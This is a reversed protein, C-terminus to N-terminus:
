NRDPNLPASPEIHAQRPVVPPLQVARVTVEDLLVQGLGSLTFIVQVSTDDAIGRYLSFKQWGRTVSFREALDQGGYTDHIMFGNLNGQIPETVNIWGHIRILQGAKVQVPASKIWLPDADITSKSGQASMVLGSAGRVAATESLEVRTNITSDNGRFNEWGNGTLQSLDEFEGGILGNPQWAAGELRQALEWYGPLTTISAFLPCANTNAFAQRGRMITAQRALALRQDARNLYAVTSTSSGTSVLRIVQQMLNNAENTAGNVEGIGNGSRQLQELVIQTLVLWRRTLEIHLQLTTEGGDERNAESLARIIGPEQTLVIATNAPCDDIRIQATNLQRARDLPVLATETLQFVQDAASFSPNTILVSRIEPTGAVWQELFTPRQILLLRSRSTTVTTIEAGPQTSDLSRNVAGGAVWPDMQRLQANIWRITLVRLESQPDRGDLRTRSRFWHGRAGGAITEYMMTQIQLPEVPLPPVRGIIAAAQTTYTEPFETQLIAWHPQTRGALDARQRLWSSYQMLPFSGGIPEFGNVLVDALLAYNDWNSIVHAILPREKWPDSQRIERVLMRTQELDKGSLQNGLQWALVRDFNHQFPELGALQPPPAILWLGLQRATALQERTPPLNLQIVNFGLNALFEFSEGNREIVRAAFPRGDIEIVTGDIKISPLLVADLGAEFNALKVESDVLPPGGIRSPIPQNLEAQIPVTGKLGIEDLWVQIEGLGPVLDLVLQDVYADRITVQRGHKSRLFPLKQKLLEAINDDSASFSLKRWRHIDRYVPGEILTTVPGALPNDSDISHPLVVRVYMRIGARNARIMISPEFEKIVYSPEINRAVHLKTGRQVTFHFMESTPNSNFHEHCLRHIPIRPSLECDSEVIQWQTGSTNLNGFEDNSATITSCIAWFSVVVVMAPISRYSYPGLHRFLRGTYGIGSAVVFKKIFSHQRIAM